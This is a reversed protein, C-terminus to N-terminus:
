IWVMMMMVLWVGSGMVHGVPVGGAAGGKVPPPAAVAPAPNPAPSPPIEGHRESMVVVVLKLGKQCHGEEGSIFYFPGSTNLEVKTDGDKYKGLPKSINCSRYHEEKM